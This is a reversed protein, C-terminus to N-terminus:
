LTEETLPRVPEAPGRAAAGYPLRYVWYFQTEYTAHPTPGPLLDFTASLGLAFDRERGGFWYEYGAGVLLGVASGAEVRPEEFLPQQVLIDLRYQPGLRLAFLHREEVVFAAEVPLRMRVAHLWSEVVEPRNIGASYGITAGYRMFFTLEDGRVIPTRPVVNVGLDASGIGAVVDIWKGLATWYGLAAVLGVGGFGVNDAVQEETLGLTRYLYSNMQAAITDVLYAYNDTAAKAYFVKRDEGHAADYLRVQADYYRDTKKLSGYFLYSVQMLEAAEAADLFSRPTTEIGLDEPTRRLSVAGATDLEEFREFVAATFRRDRDNLTVDVDDRYVQMDAMAIEVANASPACIWVVALVLASCLRRM